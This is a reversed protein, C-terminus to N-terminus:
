IIKNINNLLNEFINEYNSVVEKIIVNLNGNSLKYHFEIQTKLPHSVNYGFYKVSSHNQMGYSIINGLTHDENDVVIIGEMGNNKPLNQNFIHLKKILLNLAIEIIRKEELQGRSEVIFDYENDSIEKYCCASVASFIGSLDEMGLEAQASLVIEQKPQLKVIQVHNHYPSNIIEGKYYFKTDNTTVTYIENSKNKYSVYLTLRDISSVDIEKEVNLDIDDVIGSTEDFVEPNLDDEVVYEDLDNDIGWVPINNLKLKIYNDHFISSNKSININTYSFMPINSLIIRRLSNIVVYNIHEGKINLILRSFGLTKNYEKKKILISKKTM